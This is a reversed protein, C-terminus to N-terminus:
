RDAWVHDFRDAPDPESWSRAREAADAVAREAEAVTAAVEDAPVGHRERLDDQFRRIPDRELWRELEGEPRYLGPDSRSHGVQRYTLSELLTPGGGSLAHARAESTAERMALVDNGDITVSRM